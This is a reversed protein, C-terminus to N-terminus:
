LDSISFYFFQGEIKILDADNNNDHCTSRRLDLVVGPASNIRFPDEHNSIEENSPLCQKSVTNMVDVAHSPLEELLQPNTLLCNRSVEQQECVEQLRTNLVPLREEFDNYSCQESYKGEGFDDEADNNINMSADIDTRKLPCPKEQKRRRKVSHLENIRCSSANQSTTLTKNSMNNNPSKKVLNDTVVSKNNHDDTSPKGAKEGLKLLWSFADVTCKFGYSIKLEGFKKVLIEADQEYGIFLKIANRSRRKKKTDTSTM